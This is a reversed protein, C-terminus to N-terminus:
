VELALRELHRAATPEWQEIVSVGEALLEAQQSRCYDAAIAAPVNLTEAVFAAHESYFRDVWAAWATTNGAFRGAAGRRGGAGAIAAVEKRVVRAAADRVIARARGLARVAGGDVGEEDDEAPQQPGRQPPASTPPPDNPGGGMNKPTLPEDLGELPNRNELARVENRTLIGLEVMVRYFAARATSDARLLADLNFEFFLDDQDPGFLSVTLEQELNATWPWIGYTVFSLFFQEASAYTATKDAHGVLVGPVGIMRLFEEVLFKQSEVWQAEQPSISFPTIDAGEDLLLVGGAKDPGGYAKKYGKLLNDRGTDGLAKPAKIVVSPRMENKLFNTRQRQGMSHQTLTHKMAEFLNVGRIGDWSFGRVHLINDQTLGDARAGDRKVYSYEITGDGRLNEITVRQPDLPFVGLTRGSGDKLKQAYYNGGLIAHGMLHHRWRFSTQAKNPQLRIARNLPEDWAVRKGNPEGAADTTRRLAKAPLCAVGGALVNVGRWITSVTLADSPEAMGGGLNVTNSRTWFSDSFVGPGLYSSLLM